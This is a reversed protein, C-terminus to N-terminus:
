EKKRRARSGVELSTEVRRWFRARDTEDIAAELMMTRCDRTVIITASREYSQSKGKLRAIVEALAERRNRFGRIDRRLTVVLDRDLLNRVETMWHDVSGTAGTKKALTAKCYELYAGGIHEEVADKFTERDYAM